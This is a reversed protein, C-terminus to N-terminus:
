KFYGSIDLGDWATVMEQPDIPLYPVEWFKEAKIAEKQECLPCCGSWFYWFHFSFEQKSALSSSFSLHFYTTFRVLMCFSYPKATSLPLIVSVLSSWGKITVDLAAAHGWPRWDRRSLMRVHVLRFIPLERMRSRGDIRPAWACQPKM